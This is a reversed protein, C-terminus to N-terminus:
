NLYIYIYVKERLFDMFVKYLKEVMECLKARRSYDYTTTTIDINCVLDGVHNIAGSHTNLLSLYVISQALIAYHDTVPRHSAAQGIFTM